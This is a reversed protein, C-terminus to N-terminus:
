KFQIIYVRTNGTLLLAYNALVVETIIIIIALKIM